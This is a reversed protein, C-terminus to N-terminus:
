ETPKTDGPAEPDVAEHESAPLMAEDLAETPVPENSMVVVVPNRLYKNATQRLAEADLAMVQDIFQASADPGLGYLENLAADAARDPNSQRSLLESTLVAAKARALDDDSVLETRARDTVSMARGLAQPVSQPNTNFIVAFYGPVLGTMPAAWTAYALGQDKGRLQNELWGSPFDSMVRALVRIAPYDDSTRTAGPGFGIQVAAMPKNTPQQVLRPQPAAPPMPNFPAQPKQPMSAFLEEVQQRVEDPDVDGFVALVAADAGLHAAHFARLDDVTLAEVADLRGLVNHSWPHDGFYARRFHVSLEGPWRDRQRAIAALLRPRMKQWEDQPFTPNLMVDALLELVIPWDQKLCQAQVYHTNNGSATVFQAGLDDILQAIAQASRTTTGKIQMAAMANAVGERGPDDALLGGLQYFQMAVTPVVTSRGILLRLGNPLVVMQAADVVPAVQNRERDTHNRLHDLIAINDLLVLEHEFTEADPPDPPRTLPKSPQGPPNPRLTVTILRNPNLFRDAAVQVDAATVAQIAQAYKTSYDPDAMGIVDRALRHALDQATQRGYAVQAALKRKARALEEQTVGAARVREVEALIANRVQQMQSDPAQDAEAAPAALEADIGFFGPGWSFSANYANITNVLRQGDRVSRVLRSSEGDGLVVGLLDLAYDGPEALRTGPWALRLRPRRIDATGSLNRPQDIRSEIPLNLEALTGPPRDSWAEAIQRVVAGKDIDGVVVFVMNNPVYMQKYFRYIEDRSVAMFQDLYGITPHRAPHAQYRAQQTLKWLLRHPSGLGHEFERQIVQRERDYEAPLILSNRMWDSLLDIADATYRRTTNIYYSVTDLGTGANTRAGIAGLIASSQAETRTRTSGGSLLHELFHSLGAGSGGAASEYISGTKVWVQASVVPATRLEQAIVIMRNALEVVLRDPQDQLVQYAMPERMAGMAHTDGNHSLKSVQGFSRSVGAAVLAICFAAALKKRLSM